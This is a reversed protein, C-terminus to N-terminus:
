YESTVYLFLVILLITTIKAVFWTMCIYPATNAINQMYEADISFPTSLKVNQGSLGLYLSTVVPYSPAHDELLSTSTTPFLFMGVGTPFRVDTTRACCTM